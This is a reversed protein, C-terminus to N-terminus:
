NLYAKGSLPSSFNIKIRNNDIYNVNGWYITDASDVVSVSPFRALNHTITWETSQVNQTFIFTTQHGGGLNFNVIDYYYDTVIVGNGGVNTLSLTYFLPNSPDVVYATIKYHGFESPSNMQSIMIDTGVLYELYEVVRGLALDVVSIKLATIAGFATGGGGGGPLAMTGKADLPADIFQYALQGSISIKGKINLYTAVASATYQKTQRTIADSGIWADQDQVVVDYPYSSIKPM